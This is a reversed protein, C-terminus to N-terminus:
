NKCWLNIRRDSKTAHNKLRDCGAKFWEERKTDWIRITGDWSGSVIKNNDPNVAVSDVYGEHGRFPSTVLDGKTNWIRITRDRSGSIIRKGDPSFIASNVIGEHGIFSKSISDNSLNILRMTGDRSGSIIKNGDPSFNVTMIESDYLESWTELQQKQNLDWLRITRDRSASVLKSGDPSIAISTVGAEHGTLTSILSGSRDWLRITRDDSGSIVLDNDIAVSTVSDEHGFLPEGISNGRSDWFRITRDSSGSVITKNDQSIAVTNVVKQHGNFIDRLIGSRDWLRVTSDQGASVISEGDSSVAVSKVHGKHGEIVKSVSNDKVSWLRVTNDSSSSVVQSLDPTVAVSNILGLHGRLPLEVENGQLDWFRITRDSSASIITEGDQSFALSWIIGVHGIFPETVLNGQLDWLRIQEDDGGSAILKGDPSFAVANVLDQHKRWPSIVQNGQLDWVRVTRDKSASAILNGDPSFAIATIGAEHGIFPKGIPKGSRDWLRITGDDSSGAIIDGSSPPVPNFAIATVTNKYGVFPSGISNGSRDWLRITRDESGSAVFEGDPSFAAATVSETHGQLPQGVPEGHSNWLRLSRDSSGTLIRSGDPSYAVVNVKNEHGILQQQERIEQVADLLSSQVQRNIPLPLLRNHGMTEVAVTLADVPKNALLNRVLGAKELLISLQYFVLVTMFAGTVFSWRGIVNRRKQGISRRVFETELQNFWNNNSKLVQKLLNLRPDGHWLFSFKQQQQWEFAARTLRRQLVLNEQEQQQWVLLRQWGRILADHAPEIYKEGTTDSGSVLLRANLFRDIVKDVLPQKAQPYKLERLFVRRRAINGADIALMRLMVQRITKHYIPVQKVLAQYEADARKTLSRAVGGLEQYDAETIARKDRTGERVKQLYKLYLESLAFSLLPMAGPMQIVEDILREVLSPPDFYMVRESAPKEIAERLEERTMAPVVFRADSWYPELETDRVQSEFDSRLTLVLHLQPYTAIAKSLLSLFQLREQSNCCLTFLEEIQDIVVLLKQQPNSQMWQQLYDWIKGTLATPSGEKGNAEDDGIGIQVLIDDLAQFPFEGPRIPTLIAWQRDKLSRIHPILGAKVLSSKGTGSAGLVVTLSRELCFQYLKESLIQRGFFLNSNSEEFSELGRYPNNSEDLPPAPPLNLEHGPTIFIYEGRDHKNLPFLGPTQRTKNSEATIEVRDRLYLYLETATIVGDGSPKGDIAPPSSDAQGQLAEILAAAFPSHHNDTEGRDDELILLDAAKQNHSTSTLVQWAAAEIFRDYREQHIVEPAILLNRTSSWRFAGAFCCDLICLFHRCPLNNLAQQLRVMPLYTSTDGLKADQPILFGELGEDSNLAIGHGAFYFILRDSETINQPLFEEILRVCDQLTAREDLLGWVQYDHQQQLIQAIERADNVATSLSVIGNTYNNIGIAIALNRKFQSM